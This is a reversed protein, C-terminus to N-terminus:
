YAAHGKQMFFKIKLFVNETLNAIITFFISFIHKRLILYDSVTLVIVTPLTPISLYNQMFAIAVEVAVM